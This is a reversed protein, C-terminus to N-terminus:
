SKAIDGDTCHITYSGTYKNWNSAKTIAKWQAITGQYIVNTLISCGSFAIDGIRTVSDPITISTLGACNLFAANGISTVGNPIKVSTLGTCNGFADSDIDTVGDPIILNTVEKANKLSTVTVKDGSQSVNFNEFGPVLAWDIASFRATLTLVGSSQYKFKYPNKTSILNNGNYWGDFKFNDNPKATLTVKEGPEYRGTGSAKGWSDGNSKVILNLKIIDFTIHNQSWKNDFTVNCTGEKSSDFGDLDTLYGKRYSGDKYKATYTIKDTYYNCGLPLTTRDVTFSKVTKKKATALLSDEDYKTQTNFVVEEVTKTYNDFYVVISKYVLKELKEYAKEEEEILKDLDEWDEIDEMDVDQGVILKKAKKEYYVYTSGDIVDPKGLVKIMEAETMGLEVKSVKGVRFKNTLTVSLIVTAVILVVAVAAIISSIIIKKKGEPTLSKRKEQVKSLFRKMKPDEGMAGNEDKYGCWPCFNVKGALNKGCNPCKM